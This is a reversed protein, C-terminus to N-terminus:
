GKGGEPGNEPRLVADGENKPGAPYAFDTDIDGFIKPIRDPEGKYFVLVNQHSRGIKRHGFQGAIRIPLSGAVNVLIMENYFRAGGREFCDITLPVLGKYSGIDNRIESVVFCAFRNNNLRLIAKEIIARYRAKFTNWPMNSLDEPADTYKELDHYPPCSFVLDYHKGRPLLLDSVWADGIIWEPKKQEPLIEEAQQKNAEIQALSLDLGTYGLGLVAAVIGRVSGGAFPDFVEGGQPCFWKYILECLVPDFISTGGGREQIVDAMFGTSRFTLGNVKAKGKDTYAQAHNDANRGDPDPTIGFTLHKGKEKNRYYNLNESCIEEGQYTLEEGRGLESKIGLGLWLRKREQWYGQRTNLVSFPPIIFKAELKAKPDATIGWGEFGQQQQM